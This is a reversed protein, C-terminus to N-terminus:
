KSFYSLVAVITKQLYVFINYEGFSQKNMTMCHELNEKSNWVYCSIYSGYLHKVGIYTPSVFIVLM